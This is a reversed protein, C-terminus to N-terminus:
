RTVTYFKSEKSVVWWPNSQPLLKVSTCVQLFTDPKLYILESFFFMGLRYLETQYLLQFCLLLFLYWLVLVVWFASCHITKEQDHKAFFLDILCILGIRFLIRLSGLIITPLRRYLEKQIVFRDHLNESIRFNEFSDVNFYNQFKKCCQSQSEKFFDYKYLQM